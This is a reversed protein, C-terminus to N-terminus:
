NSLALARRAQAASLGNLIRLAEEARDVPVFLHDHYFASVVNVPIAYRALADTMAALFGVADLSSHVRATIRRSPFAFPLEHSEATDRTILVTTAEREHFVLLPRLSAVDYTADLRCFVWEHPDIAPSM